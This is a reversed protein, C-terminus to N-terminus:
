ATRRPAVGQRAVWSGACPRPQQVHQAQPGARTRAHAARRVKDVFTSILHQQMLLQKEVDDMTRERNPRGDRVKLRCQNLDMKSHVVQLREELSGRLTTCAEFEVTLDYIANDLQARPKATNRTHCPPLSCRRCSSSIM